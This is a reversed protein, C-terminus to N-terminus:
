IETFFDRNFVRCENHMVKKGRGLPHSASLNKNLVNIGQKENMYERM